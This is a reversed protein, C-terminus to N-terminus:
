QTSLVVLLVSINEKLQTNQLIRYRERLGLDCLHLILKIGLICSTPKMDGQKVYIADKWQSALSEIARLTERATEKAGREGIRCLPLLKKELRKGEGQETSCKARPFM